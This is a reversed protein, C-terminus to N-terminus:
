CNGGCTTSIGDREAAVCGSCLRGRPIRVASGQANVKYITHRVRVTLDQTEDQSVLAIRSDEDVLIELTRIQEPSLTFM